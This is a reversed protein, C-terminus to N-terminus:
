PAASKGHRDHKREERKERRASERLRSLALAGEEERENAADCGRTCVSADRMKGENHGSRRSENAKM